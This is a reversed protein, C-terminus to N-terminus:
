ANGEGPEDSAKDQSAKEEQEVVIRALMLYALVLRDTDVTKNRVGKIYVRKGV